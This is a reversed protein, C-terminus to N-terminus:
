VEKVYKCTIIASEEAIAKEVMVRRAVSCREGWRPTKGVGVAAVMKGTGM